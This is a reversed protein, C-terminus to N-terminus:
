RRARAAIGDLLTSLGFEFEDIAFETDGDELAGSTLARHVAPLHHGRTLLQLRTAYLREAESQQLPLEGTAPAGAFERSLQTQGRVYVDVLLMSSLKEQEPLPLGALAQLGAEMWQIQHPTLPPESIAVSLIWPHALVVARNARAWAGIRDRWSADAPHTLRPRGYAHDLVLALLEEKSEVYRYLAMTTVGLEAAVRRMSLGALGNSDALQVGIEGIRRVDVGPKPGPRAPEDLEWLLQLYRPITVQEGETAAM